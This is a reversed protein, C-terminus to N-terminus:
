PDSRQWTIELRSEPMQRCLTISKQVEQRIWSVM